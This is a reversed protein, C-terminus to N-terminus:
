LPTVEAARTGITSPKNTFALHSEIEVAKPSSLQATKQHHDTM